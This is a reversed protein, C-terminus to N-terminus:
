TLFVVGTKWKCFLRDLDPAVINPHRRDRPPSYQDYQPLCYPVFVDIYPLARAIRPRSSLM